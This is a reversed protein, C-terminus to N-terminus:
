RGEAQSCSSQTLQEGQKTTPLSHLGGVLGNLHTMMDKRGIRHIPINDFLVHCLLNFCGLKSPVHRDIKKFPADKHMSGLYAGCPALSAIWTRQKHLGCDFGKGKLSRLMVLICLANM